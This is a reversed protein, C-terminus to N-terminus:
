SREAHLDRGRRMAAMTDILGSHPENRFLILRIGFEALIMTAVLPLNMFGIFSAWIAAPSLLLLGASITLQAAFFICWALTVQRTYRIVKDPMTRRVRRAFSTVAPERGPRLSTAFWTLLGGYAVAHCCGEATLCVLRASPTCLWTVIAAASMIGVILAVFYRTAWARAFLWLMAAVQVAAICGSFWSSAAVPIV